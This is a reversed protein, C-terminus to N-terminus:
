QYCEYQSQIDQGMIAVVIAEHDQQDQLLTSTLNWKTDLSQVLSVASPWDHTSVLSKVMWLDGEYSDIENIYYRIQSLNYDDEQYYHLIEHLTKDVEAQLYEEMYPPVVHSPPYLEQKISDLPGKDDNFKMVHHGIITPNEPLTETQPCTNQIGEIDNVGRVKLPKENTGDKNTYIKTVMLNDTYQLIKIMQMRTDNLELINIIYNYQNLYVLKMLFIVNTGLSIVFSM